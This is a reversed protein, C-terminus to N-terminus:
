AVLVIRDVRFRATLRNAPRRHSKHPYLRGLLLTLQHLMACPIQQHPLPGLHYIRQPRMQGLEPDHSRLSALPDGRLMTRILRALPQLADGANADNARASNDASDRIRIGEARTTIKRGPNPEYRSLIRGPAFLLETRNGLLAIAVQPTNKHDPCVSHQPPGFM